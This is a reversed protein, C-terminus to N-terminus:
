PRYPRLFAEMPGRTFELDPTGPTGLFAPDMQGMNATQRSDHGGIATLAETCFNINNHAAANLRCSDDERIGCTMPGQGGWNFVANGTVQLGRCGQEILIGCRPDDYQCGGSDIVNNGCVSGWAVDRLVVGHGRQWCFINGTICIEHSSEVLVADTECQFSRCGSILVSNSTTHLHYASRRTQFAQCSTLNVVIARACEVGAGGAYFTCGSVTNPLYSGGRGHGALHELLVGARANGALSCDAVRSLFTNNRLHIGAGAFDTVFLGRVTCDGCSDLVVGAEAEGGGRLAFDALLVGDVGEGVLAQGGANGGAPRLVSGRGCGRITVNSKLRLPAPLDYEGPQLLVEGGAPPQADIAHQIAERADAFEGLDRRSAQGAARFAAGDRHILITENV